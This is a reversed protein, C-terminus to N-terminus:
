AKAADGSDVHAGRAEAATSQFRPLSKSFRRVESEPVVLRHGDKLANLSGDALRRYFSSRSMDGMLRRAERAPLLRDM